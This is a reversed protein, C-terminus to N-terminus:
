KTQRTPLLPLCWLVDTPNSPLSSPPACKTHERGADLIPLGHEKKWLAIQKVAEMRQEFLRAMERDTENIIARQATLVEMDM